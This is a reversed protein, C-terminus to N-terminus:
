LFFYVLYFASHNGINCYLLTKSYIRLRVKYSEPSLDHHNWPKRRRCWDGGPTLVIFSKKMSASPLAFYTKDCVDQPKTRCQIDIKFTGIVFM